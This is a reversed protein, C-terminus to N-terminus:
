SGSPRGKVVGDVAVEDNAIFDARVGLTGVQLGVDLVDLLYAEGGDLGEEAVGNVELLGFAGVQGVKVVAGFVAVARLKSGVEVRL